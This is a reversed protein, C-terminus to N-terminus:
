TLNRTPSSSSAPKNSPSCPTSYQLAPNSSPPNSIAPIVPPFYLVWFGSAFPRTRCDHFGVFFDFRVLIRCSRSSIIKPLSIAPGTQYCQL